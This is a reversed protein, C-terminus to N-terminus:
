YFNYIPLIKIGFNKVRLYGESKGFLKQTETKGRYTDIYISFSFNILSVYFIFFELHEAQVLFNSEIVSNFIFKLM